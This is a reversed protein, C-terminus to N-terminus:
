VHDWNLSHWARRVEIKRAFDPGGGIERGEVRCSDLVDGGRPMRDRRAFDVKDAHRARMHGVRMDHPLDSLFALPVDPGADPRVVAEIADVLAAGGIAYVVGGCAAFRGHRVLDGLGATPLFHDNNASARAAELGRADSRFAPMVDDHELRGVFWAPLHPKCGSARTALLHHSDDVPTHFLARRSADSKMKAGPRLRVDNDRVTGYALRHN